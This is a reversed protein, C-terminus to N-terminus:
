CEFNLEFELKPLTYDLETPKNINSLSNMAKQQHTIEIEMKHVVPRPGEKTTWFLEDLQVITWPSQGVSRQHKRRKHKKNNKDLPRIELYYSEDVFDEQFEDQQVGTGSGFDWCTFIHIANNNLETKKKIEIQRKPDESLLPLRNVTDEIPIHKSAMNNLDDNQGVQQHQLNDPAETQLTRIAGIQTPQQNGNNTDGQENMPINEIIQQTNQELDIVETEHRQENRGLYAVKKMLIPLSGTRQVFPKNKFQEIVQCITQPEQFLRFQLNFRNGDIADYGLNDQNNDRFKVTNVRLEIMMIKDMRQVKVRLQKRGKEEEEWIQSIMEAMGSETKDIIITMTTIMIMTIITITMKKQNWEYQTQTYIQIQIEGFPKEIMRQQTSMDPMGWFSYISM